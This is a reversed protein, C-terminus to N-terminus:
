RAREGVHHEQYWSVTRDIGEAFGVRPEYGLFERALDISAQSHLIDGPRAEAHVPELDVGLRERLTAALEVLSIREGCSANFVGGGEDVAREKPARLALLNADVVNEVFTFDRTQHGDGYIVPRRGDLLSTVFRPIVAAYQSSPDQRPGFVNFYRLSVATFGYLRGFIGCAQEATLKSLAYPSLPDPRASERKRLEASEGYVSSSSAYVLRDIGEDRCAVLLNTTGAINVDITEGPDDVSRPVSGLAAEHFVYRCGFVASRVAAVNRLDADHVDVESAVSALNERSGSSFNDLVRVEFGESLLRGVIHSGIFGAGGTVLVRDGM